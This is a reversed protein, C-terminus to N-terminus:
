NSWGNETQAPLPQHLVRPSPSFKWQFFCTVESTSYKCQRHTPHQVLPFEHFCRMSSTATSREATKGRLTDWPQQQQAVVLWVVVPPPQKNLCVIRFRYENKPYQEPWTFYNSFNLAHVNLTQGDHVRGKHTTKCYQGHGTQLACVHTVTSAWLM